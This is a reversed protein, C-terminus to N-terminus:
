KTPRPIAWPVTLGIVQDGAKLELIPKGRAARGQRVADDFRCTKSALESLHITFRTTRKGVVIGVLDVNTPLRWAIVGQGYRGQRPFQSATVRKGSGDSAVM